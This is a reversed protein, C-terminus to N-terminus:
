FGLRTEMCSILSRFVPCPYEGDSSRKASAYICITSTWHFLNALDYFVCAGQPERKKGRIQDLQASYPWTLSAVQHIGKRSSQYFSTRPHIDIITSAQCPSVSCAKMGEYGAERVEDSALSSEPISLYKWGM